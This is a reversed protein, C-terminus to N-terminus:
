YSDEVVLDQGADGSDRDAFEDFTTDTNANDGVDTDKESALFKQESVDRIEKENFGDDGPRRIGTEVQIKAATAIDQVAKTKPDFQAPNYVQSLWKLTDRQFRLLELEDKNTPTKSIQLVNEAYVYTRDVFALSLAEKFDEFTRRWYMIKAYDIEFERCVDQISSGNLLRECILDRAIPSYANFLSSSYNSEKKVEGTAVDILRAKGDNCKKWVENKM